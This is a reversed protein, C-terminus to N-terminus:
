EYVLVQKVKGNEDLWDVRDDHLGNRYVQSVAAKGPSFRSTRGHQMGFWYMEDSRQKRSLRAQRGHLTGDALTTTYVQALGTPRATKTGVFAAAPADWWDEEETQIWLREYDAQLAPSACGQVLDVIRQRQEVAEYRTIVYTCSEPIQDLFGAVAEASFFGGLQLFSLRQLVGSAAVSDLLDDGMGTRELRLRDISPLAGPTFLGKLLKAPFSSKWVPTGHFDLQLVRLKPWPASLAKLAGKSFKGTISLHELRPCAEHLGKIGDFGTAGVREISLHRLAQPAAEVLTKLVGKYSHTRANHSMRIRQLLRGVPSPCVAQLWISGSGTKRNEVVSGAVILGKDWTLGLDKVPSIGKRSEALLAPEPQSLELSIHKGLPDGAASLQAAYAAFNAPSEDELLTIELDSLPPSPM